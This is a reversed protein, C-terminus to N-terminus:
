EAAKEESAEAAPAEGETPTEESAPVDEEAPANAAEEAAIAESEKTALAAARAENVKAEAALRTAEETEKAKALADVKGDIKATKKSKWEDFRKDAEEQTIAGKDVGVLLHKKYLIGEYSLIRKVTDTPQAGATKVWYLARDENLSIGAPNVNPNYLGLKEIFKGDRPSRSDATVIDYIPRAKRGRRALRIKVPM